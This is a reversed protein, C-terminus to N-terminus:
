GNEQWAVLSLLLEARVHASGLDVGLLQGIREVRNRLTHRHVNLAAAAAEGHGNHELFARLTTVLEAGTRRDCDALPRLRSEALVALVARTDPHTSLVQGALSGFEVLPVNRRRAVDAAILAQRLAEPIGSLAGAPAWGVAAGARGETAVRSSIEGLQGTAGAPLLVVACQEHPAVFCPLDHDALLRDVTATVQHLSVDRIALILVGNDPLHLGATGLHARATDEDLKAELLLSLLLSNVATQATRLRRPKGRELALLSVAHGIVLHDVPTLGRETVVVLRGHVRGAVRIQQVAVVGPEAPRTSGGAAAAKGAAPLEALVAPALGAASPPHAAVVAKGADLLFVQSETAVALERVVAPAGGRLAARTMRPQASSARVVGQYEQEALREIVAKAVAIFPTPLPVELLPLGVEDAADVLERPVRRFSLGVGFALATAGAEDLRRVYHRRDEGGRPLRLGTTLVLEGGRIWPLPDTLEISHAWRIPRHLASRGALVRLGLERQEVLWRVAVGVSM